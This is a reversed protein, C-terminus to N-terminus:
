SRNRFWDVTQALGDDLDIHPRWGLVHRAQSSDGFMRWIETPRYPLAGLVPPPATDLLRHVLMAIDRIAVEQGCGINMVRGAIDPAVLARCLADAVDAVYTFERTQRGGTMELSVGRLGAAILEPIIRDTSQGPGYANFLRLCVIPWGYAQHFMRCFREAAYKSVAYPSAPSTPGDERFPVAVDGYVDGSGVYVFREYAGDLAMLLNVTGQINTQINENMRRFSRGVHTVAAQHIVLDPLVAAVVSRLAAPDALDAGLVNVGDSFPKRLPRQSGSAGSTMATVRAGHDVLADTVWSGIFGTAGTVLVRRGKLKALDVVVM